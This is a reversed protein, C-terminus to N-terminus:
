RLEEYQCCEEIGSKRIRVDRKPDVGLCRDCNYTRKINMEDECSLLIYNELIKV